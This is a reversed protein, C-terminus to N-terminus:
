PNVLKDFEIYNKNIIFIFNYGQALCVKQKSLNKKLDKLYTYDSKIEIILNKNKLYFDPYYIKEKQIFSYKISKANEVKINNKFCCDLFDKEYSGRYKLGTLEHKKLLFASTQNKEFSEQNHMNHEVGYKKLNTKKMKDKVEESYIPSTCGYNDFLTQSIKTQVEKSAFPSIGGYRELCTKEIKNRILKNNLVCEFGYRKLNTQKNKVSACSNSCCYIGTNKINKNYKDYSLKKKHGCIDCKVNIKARSSLTLHEVKILIKQKNKIIYYGLKQYYKILKGTMVLEVEKDLIM